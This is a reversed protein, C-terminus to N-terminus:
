LVIIMQGHTKKNDLHMEQKFWILIWAYEDKTKNKKQKQITLWVDLM